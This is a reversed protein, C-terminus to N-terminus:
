PLTLWWPRSNYKVSASTYGGPTYKYYTRHHHYLYEHPMFPPYTIWTHGVYPPTPRPSVYLQAPVGPPGVYYNYFLPMPKGAQLAYPYAQANVGGGTGVAGAAGGQCGPGPVATGAPVPVPAPEVASPAVPPVLGPEEAMDDQASASQFTLGALLLLPAARRAVRKWPQLM